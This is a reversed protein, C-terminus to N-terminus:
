YTSLTQHQPTVIPTSLCGYSLNLIGLWTGHWQLKLYRYNLRHLKIKLFENDNNKQM